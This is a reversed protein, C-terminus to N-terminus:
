FAIVPRHPGVKKQDDILEIFEECAIDCVCLAFGEGPSQSRQYSRPLDPHDGGQARVEILPQLLYRRQEVQLLSAGRVVQRRWTRGLEGLDHALRRLRCAEAE